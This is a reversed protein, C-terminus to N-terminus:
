LWEKLLYDISVEMLSYDGAQVEHCFLIGRWYNSGQPGAYHEDHQYFSGAVIGRQAKGTPTYRMGVSLGQQHGQTFSQGISRLRNPVQGGLPMRKASDPNQFYHSYLIGDIDVIELFDHVEDFHRRLRLDDLSITGELRPDQYVARQIRNEHNGTIFVTRPTYLAHKSKKRANNYRIWPDFLLDMGAIGADIDSRYSKGEFYKSGRQEYQSMSPMDFWDGLVVIVDPKKDLIYNSAATIHETPVGPKIQTDPVVCHTIPKTKSNM